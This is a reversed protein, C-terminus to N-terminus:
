VNAAIEAMQKCHREWTWYESLPRADAGDSYIVELSAALEGVGKAGLSFQTQLDDHGYGSSLITPVGCAMCEMAVFNTGGERRNPFVAVDCSGYVEAMRWNPLRGVLEFQHPKIGARQAWAVYNPMGIHIGPPAGHEWRGEFDQASQSFPSGWSAVLMADDHKEAFIRFADIVIDQGKRYEAKGGSFVRFRGDNRTKRVSPNFIVPDIGEHCLGTEIGLGELVQQNWRSAVVVFDYQKLREINREVNEVDEFVACAVTLKGRVFRGYAMPNEILDNGLAVFVPADPLQVIGGPPGAIIQAQVRKSQELREQLLPRRPDSPPLEADLEPSASVAQGPWNLAYGLGRVAWGHYSSIPWAFITDSM